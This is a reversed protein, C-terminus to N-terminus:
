FLILVVLMGLLMFLSPYLKIKSKNDDDTKFCYKEFMNKYVCCHEMQGNLDTKGLGCFFEYLSNKSEDDIYLDKNNFCMNKFDMSDLCLFKYEKKECLSSIVSSVTEKKYKIKQEIQSILVVINKLQKSKQILRNTIYFGISAICFGIILIGCFRM